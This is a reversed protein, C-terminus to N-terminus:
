TQGEEAPSIGPGIGDSDKDMGMPLDFFWRGNVRLFGSPKGGVTATARDGEIVVNELPGQPGNFPAESSSGEKEDPLEDIFTMIDNFFEPSSFAEPMPHGETGEEMSKNDIDHRKLLEEFRKELVSVQSVGSEKQEQAGMAEAMGEGMNAFAVTMGGVVVMMANMEILSNPSVCAAVEKWNSTEAGAKFRNFVEEPTEGGLEQSAFVPSSIGFVLFASITLIQWTQQCKRTM